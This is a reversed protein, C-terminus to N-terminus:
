FPIGNSCPIDSSPSPTNWDTGDDVPKAKFQPNEELWKEAAEQEREFEDNAEQWKREIAEEWEMVVKNWHQVEAHFLEDDMGKPMVDM